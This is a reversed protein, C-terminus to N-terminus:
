KSSLIRKTKRCRSRAKSLPANSSRRSFSQILSSPKACLKKTNKSLRVRTSASSKRMRRAVSFKPTLAIGEVADDDAAVIIFLTKNAKETTLPFIDDSNRLLTISKEATRNAERVNEPKEILENVKAL